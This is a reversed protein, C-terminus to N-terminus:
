LAKISDEYLRSLAKISGQYLRSLAQMSGEYLRLLAKALRVKDLYFDRERKAQLISCIYTHM